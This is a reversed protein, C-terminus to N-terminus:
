MSSLMMIQEQKEKPLLKLNAVIAEQNDNFFKEKRKYNEEDTGYSFLVVFKKCGYPCLYEGHKSIVFEQLDKEDLNDFLNCNTCRFLFRKEM